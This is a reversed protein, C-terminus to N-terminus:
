GVLLEGIDQPLQDISWAHIGNVLSQVPPSSPKLLFLPVIKAARTASLAARCFVQQVRLALGGHIGREDGLGDSFGRRSLLRGFTGLPMPRLSTLAASSRRNCPRVARAKVDNIISSALRMGVSSARSGIKTGM